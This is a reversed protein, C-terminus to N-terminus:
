QTNLTDFQQDFVPNGKKLIVSSPPSDLLSPPPSCLPNPFKKEVSINLIARMKQSRPKVIGRAFPAM